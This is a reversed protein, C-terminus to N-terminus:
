RRLLRPTLLGAVYDAGPITFHGRDYTVLDRGNPGIRALCGDANCLLDHLSIYEVGAGEALTRLRKEAYAVAPEDLRFTTRADILRKNIFHFQLLNEVLGDGTWSPGPGLLVVKRVGAARLREFTTQLGGLVNDDFFFFYIWWSYLVVVDPRQEVIRALVVDNIASCMPREPRQYGITPGCASATYQSVGLQPNRAFGPYLSAAYSDGWLFVRPKTADSACEGVFADAGQEPLLFCRGKRWHASSEEGTLMFPRLSESIRSPFGTTFYTSAGLVAVGALAAALATAVMPRYQAAGFRIPREVFLYTAIALAFSLALAISMALGSEQEPALVRLFAMIPFHWLYLPYSILGIWVFPRSSLVFRNVRSNPTCILVGSAAVPLIATMVANYHTLRLVVFALALAALAAAAEELMAAGPASLKEEAKSRRDYQVIAIASGVLLEWARSVPLYFAQDPHGPQLAMHIALSIAAVVLTFVLANWRLRRCALLMLPWFVYYQEEIALSWLHLLPKRAAEVDFYGVQQLLVFNQIFAAGGFLSAGLSTFLKPTFLIWGALFVALCVLVLAPFIRRIRRRYFEVISFRDRDIESYIIGTILYGSIVFFVDVGVFGARLREPLAHYGVVLLIAVARLGDIDRRYKSAAGASM